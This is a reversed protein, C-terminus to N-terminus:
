GFAFLAVAVIGVAFGGFQIRAIEEHDLLRALVITPGPALGLVAAVVAVSGRQYALVSLVTAVGSLAGFGVAPKIGRRRPRLWRGSLRAIASLLAAATAQSVVGPGIGSAATTQGYCVAAGGLFAGSVIAIALAQPVPLRNSGRQTPSLAVLAAAPFALLLGAVELVSLEDGLLPGFTAPVALSVLGLVPAVIAIPGRSMGLMLLPLAVGLCCGAAAAWWGDRATFSEPTAVPLALLAIAAGLATALATYTLAGEARGDNRLAVGSLYDAVGLSLSSAVALLLVV